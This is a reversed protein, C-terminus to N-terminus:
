GPRWFVEIAEIRGDPGHSTPITISDNEMQGLLRWYVPRAALAAAVAAPVSLVWAAGTLTHVAIFVAFIAAGLAAVILFIKTKNTM